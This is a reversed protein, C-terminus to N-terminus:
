FGIIQSFISAVTAPRDFRCCMQGANMLERMLHAEYYIQSDAVTSNWLSPQFNYM